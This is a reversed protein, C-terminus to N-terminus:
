ENLDASYPKLDIFNMIKRGTATYIYGNDNCRIAKETKKTPINNILALKIYIFLSILWTDKRVYQSFLFDVLNLATICQCLYGLAVPRFIHLISM